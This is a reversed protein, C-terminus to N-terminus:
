SEAVLLRRRLRIASEVAESHSEFYGGFHDKGTRRIQVRWKGNAKCWSVGPVSSLKNNRNARHRNLGNQSVSVVRLNARRNDLKDGNVHDIVKGHPAPGIVFRHLTLPVSGRPQYTPYGTRRHLFWAYECAREGDETDLLAYRRSQRDFLPVVTIRRQVTLPVIRRHAM